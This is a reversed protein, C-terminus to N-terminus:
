FFLGAYLLALSKTLERRRRPDIGAYELDEM